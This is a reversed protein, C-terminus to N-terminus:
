APPEASGDDMGALSLALERNEVGRIDVVLGERVTLVQWRDNTEGEIGGPAVRLGVVVRDGHSLIETVSARTGSARGRQWWDVVQQKNVCDMSGPEAGGWRVNPDLLESVEGLDATELAHRIRERLSADVEDEAPAGSAM